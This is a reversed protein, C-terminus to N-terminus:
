HLFSASSSTGNATVRWVTGDSARLLLIDRPGEPGPMLIVFSRDPSWEGFFMRNPALAQVVNSGDDRMSWLPSPEDFQRDEFLIRGNASWSLPGRYAPCSAMRRLSRANTRDANMVWIEDGGSPDDCGGVVRQVHWRFAIKAGDPSWVSNSPYSHGVATGDPNFLQGSVLIAGDPTWAQPGGYSTVTNVNSGDPDMVYTFTIDEYGAPMNARMRSFAVRTGDRSVLPGGDWDPGATLQQLGTGDANMAWLDSNSSNNDWIAFILRVSALDPPPTCAVDFTLLQDAVTSDVTMTRIPSGSVACNGAVDALEVTVDGAPLSTLDLTSNLELAAILLSQGGQRVIVQYGDVDFAGGTTTNSVRLGVTGSGTTFGVRVEQELPDSQFDRVATTVVLEYSELPDLPTEPAFEAMFPSGEVVAVTGPVPTDGGLLQVTAPGLSQPDIPESFVVLPRISLAVDTRGKPPNTRVVVPPRRVPVVFTVHTITGDGQRVALDIRDGPSAPVIVPDFGGDIVPVADLPLAGATVNRLRANLAGPLTGPAVSVYAVGSEAAAASAVANTAPMARSESVILGPIAPDGADVVECNPDNTICGPTPDEEEPAIPSRADPCGALLLAAAATSMLIQVRWSTVRMKADKM